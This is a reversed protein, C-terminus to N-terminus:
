IQTKIRNRLDHWNIGSIYKISESCLLNHEKAYKNWEDITPFKSFNKSINELEKISEKYKIYMISEEHYQLENKYYSNVLKEFEEILKKTKKSDLGNKDISIELRIRLKEFRRM